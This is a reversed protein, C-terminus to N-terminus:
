NNGWTNYHVNEPKWKDKPTNQGDPYGIVVCSLPIINEPMNFLKAFAAVRDQVPYIGCWVAGLGMSHAALLLNETAASVDQVWFERAEGQLAADMDGCLIIALKAGEVMKMNPSISAISDLAERQNVVLFRWPQKNVATPAAMAAHLLSDVQETGVPKDSYSRVSTRTMIADYTANGDQGAKNSCSVSALAIAITAFFLIVKKM